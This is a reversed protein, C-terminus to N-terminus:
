LSVCYVHVRTNTSQASTICKWIVKIIALVQCVYLQHHIAHLTSNAADLHIFCCWHKYDICIHPKVWIFICSLIQDCYIKPRHRYLYYFKNACRIDVQHGIFSHIWHIFHFYFHIIIILKKELEFAHFCYLRM